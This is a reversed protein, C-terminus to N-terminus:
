AQLLERLRKAGYTGSPRGGGERTAGHKEPRAAASELHEQSDRPRKERAPLPAQSEAEAKINHRADNLRVM